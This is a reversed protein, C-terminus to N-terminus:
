VSLFNFGTCLATFFLSCLVCILGVDTFLLIKRNPRCIMVVTQEEESRTPLTEERHTQLHPRRRIYLSLPPSTCRDGKYLSRGRVPGCHNHGPRVPGSPNRWAHSHNYARPDGACAELEAARGRVSARYLGFHNGCGGRAWDIAESRSNSASIHNWRAQDRDADKCPTSFTSSPPPPPAKGLNSQHLPLDLGRTEKDGAESFLPMLYLHYGHVVLMTLTSSGPVEKMNYRPGPGGENSCKVLALSVYGYAPSVVGIALNKEWRGFKIAVRAPNDQYSNEVSASSCIRWDLRNLPVTYYITINYM